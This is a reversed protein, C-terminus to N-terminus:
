AQATFVWARRVPQALLIEMTGRDLEGAVIDSGRAISWVVMTFLIVPHVYALAIRGAPTAVDKFPVGSLREWEAPVLNLLMGFKPLTIMSSLWVYLASFCLVLLCLWFLLWRIDSFSRRWLALNM